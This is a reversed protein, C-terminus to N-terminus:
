GHQSEYYPAHGKLSKQTGRKAQTLQIPRSCDHMDRKERRAVEKHEQLERWGQKKQM